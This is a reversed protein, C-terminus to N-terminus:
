VLWQGCCMTQHLQQKKNEVTVVFYTQLFIHVGGKSVYIFMHM